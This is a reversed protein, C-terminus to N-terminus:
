CSHFMLTFHNCGVPPYRVNKCYRLLMFPFVVPFPAFKGVRCLLLGSRSFLHLSTACVHNPHEFFKGSSTRTLFVRISGRKQASQPSLSCRHPIECSCKAALSQEPTEAPSPPHLDRCHKAGQITRQTTGAFTKPRPFAPSPLVLCLKDRWSPSQQAPSLMGLLAVLDQARWARCFVLFSQHHCGPGPHSKMSSWATVEASVKSKGSRELCGLM